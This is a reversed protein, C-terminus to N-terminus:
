VYLPESIPMYLYHEVTKHYKDLAEKAAEQLEKIYEERLIAQRLKAEELDIYLVANSYSRHCALKDNAECEYDKDIIYVEGDCRNERVVSTVKQGIIKERSVKYVYSQLNLEKATM